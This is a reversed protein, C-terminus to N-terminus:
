SYAHVTGNPDTFSTVNGARNYQYSEQNSASTSASGTTPDPYSVKALLDNSNLGSGGSTTVGYTYQTTQSATGSPMAAQVTLVRNIGNYTTNTTINSSATPTGNTYAQITQTTRGLGDYTTQNVIGRPDTVTQVWGAANYAYGTVLTTDSSAPATSPRTYASGGNSGVDVTATLRNAADFYSALYSVRAKPGTSANGLAGTDTGADNHFRDRTTILIPNSSADYTTLTQTLVHDGSLATAQAWTTGAAGDTQAEQTLRGAGEFQNKTWLGGPKATAVTNGRHDYYLNTTLTYTSLTGTSQNVSYQQTQYVRGQDDYSATAYTRLLASSPKTSSLSVTDGDFQSTATVQGLNDLDYYLIPRHTTTDETAQVGSKLAVLRDRGDYALQTVRNNVSTADVFTTSQTLNGEGVGNGDYQAQSVLVMNSATAANSPTWPKGDTTTDNTGVYVATPRDLSDFLTDTITGVANQVRQRNGSDDFGAYTAYYNTNLAGLHATTAYTLSALSFYRDQEIVRGATDTYSRSLTQLNAVAETGDPVGSTLHPAASMTLTEYYSGARDERALITPGTPTGTSSNWGDYERVAHNPDDYVLYNVNGSPDTVKSPRGLGDIVTQTVLNLGGGTPTSWGSPLNTFLSTQTTDVDVISTVVAGTANDYATYHLFGDADKAWTPRGYADLVVTTTDASGPGNQTSSIIPASAAVSYIQNTGAYWTYAYSTTEAGTGNTNRCVTSNAQPYITVGGAAHSIYQRSWLLSATGSQGVQIKEDKAYGIVDGATTSTATTSTGFDFLHIVGSSSSLYSSTGSVFNLLDAYTASYGTVVSPEATEVLRGQSDFRNLTIWHKGQIASNATDSSNYFDKLMVEGAYNTYVTNTNGDPLTELTKTAWSNFGTSNSSTTYSYTFTGPGTPGAGQITELTVRQQSDYQYSQDAYPAVQADTATLPNLGAAVMRAYSAPGFFYKLGDTYGNAQGAQYYRFYTTDLTNGSADKIQESLLDGANGYSQTGDYYTYVAQRVTTWSGGGVQRRLTVNQVLGTNTGSTIFTFLFSETTTVGGVTTSRQIESIQGSTTHATVSIVNGNADTFSKLQGQQATPLSSQFGYFRLRDGRADTLVFDGASGDPQLTYESSEFFKATYAGSIANYDFWLASSGSNTFMIGGSIGVQQLSPLASNVMGKGFLSGSSWGAINTWQLSQGFLKGFGSSTLGDKANLVAGSGYQVGSSGESLDGPDGGSSNPSSPALNPTCTCECSCTVSPSVAIFTKYPTIGVSPLIVDSTHAQSGGTPMTSTVPTTTQIGGGPGQPSRPSISISGPPTPAQTHTRTPPTPSSQGKTPHKLGALEARLDARKHQFETAVVRHAARDTWLHKLEREVIKIEHQILSKHALAERPAVHTPGAKSHSVAAALALHQLHPLTAAGAHLLQREELAEIRLTKRTQQQRQIRNM